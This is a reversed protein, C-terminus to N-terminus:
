YVVYVNKVLQERLDGLCVKCINDLLQIFYISVVSLEDDSMSALNDAPLTVNIVSRDLIVNM